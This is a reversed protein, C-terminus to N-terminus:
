ETDKSCMYVDQNHLRSLDPYLPRNETMTWARGDRLAENLSDIWTARDTKTDAALLYRFYYANGITLVHFIKWVYFHISVQVTLSFKGTM